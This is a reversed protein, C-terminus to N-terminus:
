RSNLFTGVDNHVLCDLFTGVSRGCFLGLLLNEQTEWHRNLSVLSGDM